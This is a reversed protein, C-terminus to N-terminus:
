DAGEETEVIRGGCAGCFKATRKSLAVGCHPCTAAPLPAPRSTPATESQGAPPRVAQPQARLVLTAALRDHLAQKRPSFIAMVFGLMLILGSLLKGAYRLSARGLPIRRGALDTVVIGMARKGPTAQFRSSEFLAFYLWCWFLIAVTAAMAGQQPALGLSQMMTASPFALLLNLLVGDMIMALFRRGISAYELPLAASPVATPQAMASAAPQPQFPVPPGPPGAAPPAPPAPPPAMSGSVLQPRPPAPIDQRGPPPPAAPPPSQSPAQDSRLAGCQPCFKATPKVPAGCTPCSVTAAAQPQARPTATAGCQPCFRASAPLVAGCGPCAPADSAVPGSTEAHPQELAPEDTPHPAPEPPRVRFPGTHGPRPAPSPPAGTRAYPITGNPSEASSPQSAADHGPGPPPPAAPHGPRAPVTAPLGDHDLAAGCIPCVQAQLPCDHGCIPCPISAPM